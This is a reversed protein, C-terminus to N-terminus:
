GAMNSFATGSSLAEASILKSKFDLHAYTDATIKFTSHGLWDQVEKMSVGNALLFSACAHRLDHYRVKRIGHKELTYAFTQTIYDPKIKEGVEDVYVFDLYDKCYSEGCLAKLENNKQQIELLKASLAPIMPLTRRSSENKTRPKDEIVRKGDISYQTVTFSISITNKKFNVADWKLGVVESRRFGYFGLMVALELKTDKAVELIKQM